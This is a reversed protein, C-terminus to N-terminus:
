KAAAAATLWRAFQGGPVVWTRTLSGIRRLLESVGDSWSRDLMLFPHLIVTRLARPADLQSWMRATLDAPALPEARDGRRTRLPRFQEMLHYADVLEWDFPIVALGDGLGAAVGTPSCWGIGTELLLRPSSSTLHGGPPRFGSVEIGLAAFARMGRSLVHLERAPTLESWAEHRWGHMGIEHGRTVIERLADPYLECNIAEVFFTARLSNAELEDLLPPLADTVSRHHGLPGTDSRGGRELESAEGLNDFTLVVAGPLRGPGFSM